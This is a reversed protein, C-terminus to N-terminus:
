AYIIADVQYLAYVSFNQTYNKETPRPSLGSDDLTYYIDQNIFIDTFFHRKCYYVVSLKRLRYRVDGYGGLDTEFTYPFTVKRRDM